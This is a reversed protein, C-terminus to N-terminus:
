ILVELTLETTPGGIDITNLPLDYENCSCEHEDPNTPTLDQAEKFGAAAIAGILLGTACIITEEFSFRSKAM